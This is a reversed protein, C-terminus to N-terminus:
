PVNGSLLPIESTSLYFVWGPSSREGNPTRIVPAFSLWTALTPPV